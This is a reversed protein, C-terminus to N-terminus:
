LKKQVFLLVPRSILGYLSVSLGRTFFYSTFKYATYFSYKM